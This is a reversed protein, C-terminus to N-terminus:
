SRGARRPRSRRCPRRPSRTGCASRASSPSGSSASPSTPCSRSGSARRSRATSAPSRPSRTPASRTASTAWARACRPSCSAPMSSSSRAGASPSRATPSSGSTPASGPTTSSSTPCPSSRGRALRERHDLAPDRERGLGRRRHVAALRQLRHRAPWRGGRTAQAQQDHAPPLPVLRRQHAAPRGRLSRRLRAQRARRQIEREVKKWEVGFPPNALLYDYRAGKFADESFSNGLRINSAKQGKLMMDSQPLHRLDRREAGPRLGRAQAGPNLERLYDEAVSLMGGTGCAPDLMTRVIGPTRLAEDDEIFLLDVM